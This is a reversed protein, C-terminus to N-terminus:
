DGSFQMEAGALDLNAPLVSLLDRRKILIGPTQAPDVMTDYVTHKLMNPRHAM